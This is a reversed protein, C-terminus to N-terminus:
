VLEEFDCHRTQDNAKSQRPRHQLYRWQAYTSSSPDLKFGRTHKEDRAPDLHSGILSYQPHLPSIRAGTYCWQALQSWTPLVLGLVVGSIQVFVPRTLPLQSDVCDGHPFISGELKPAPVSLHLTTIPFAAPPHNTTLTGNVNPHATPTILSGRYVIPFPPRNLPTLLIKAKRLRNPVGSIVADYHPDLLVRHSRNKKRRKNRELLLHNTVRIAPEKSRARSGVGGGGGDSGTFLGSDGSSDLTSIPEGLALQENVGDAEPYVDADLGAALEADLDIDSDFGEPQLESPIRGLKDMASESAGGKRLIRLSDLDGKMYACHLATLGNVDAITLDIHWEVLRGLLSPYDYLIALHALTQHHENTTSVIEHFNPRAQLCSLAEMLDTEIPNDRPGAGQSGGQLDRNGQRAHLTTLLTQM